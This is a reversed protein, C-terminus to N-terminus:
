VADLTWGCAALTFRTAFALAALLAIAEVVNYGDVYEIVHVTGILGARLRRGLRTGRRAGLVMSVVVQCAAAVPSQQGAVVPHLDNIVTATAVAGRHAARDLLQLARRANLYTQFFIRNM